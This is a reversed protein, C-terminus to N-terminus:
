GAGGSGADEGEAGTKQRKGAVVDAEAAAERKADAQQRKLLSVEAELETIRKNRAEVEHHARLMRQRLHECELQGTRELELLKSWQTHSWPLLVSVDDPAFMSRRNEIVNMLRGSATDLQSRLDPRVEGNVHSCDGGNYRDTLLRLYRFSDINGLERQSPARQVLLLLQQDCERWVPATDDLIVVASATLRWSLAHLTARPHTAGFLLAQMCLWYVTLVHDAM